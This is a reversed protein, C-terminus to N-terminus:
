NSGKMCEDEQRSITERFPVFLLAVERLPLHTVPSSTYCFFIHLHLAVLIYGSLVCLFIIREILSFFEEVNKTKELDKGSCRLHVHLFVWVEQCLGCGSGGRVLVGLWFWGSCHLGLVM